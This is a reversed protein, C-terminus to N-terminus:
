GTSASSHKRTASGTTSEGDLPAAAGVQKLRGDPLFLRDQQDQPLSERFTKRNEFALAPYTEQVDLDTQEVGAIYERITFTVDEVKLAPEDRRRLVWILARVADMDIQELGEIFKPLGYGLERQVAAVDLNPWTTPDMDYLKDGVRFHAM